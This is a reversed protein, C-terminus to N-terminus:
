CHHDNLQAGAELIPAMGASWVYTPTFGPLKSYEEIPLTRGTTVDTVIQSIQVESKSNLHLYYANYSGDLIRTVGDKICRGRDDAVGMGLRTMRGIYHVENDNNMDAPVPNQLNLFVDITYTDHICRVNDYVVYLYESWENYLTGSSDPEAPPAYDYGLSRSDKSM